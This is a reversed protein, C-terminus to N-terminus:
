GSRSAGRARSPWQDPHHDSVGDHRSGSPYRVAEIHTHEDIYIGSGIAIGQSMDESCGPTRAGILSESNTRVHKGLQSSIAPLSGKEKLQFLLEMTGLSSASFVVGRCTFRRPQPRDVRHIESHGGRIRRQRRGAGGLPKVDVVRTEPFLERGASKRWISIALTSVYEERRLPLGDHMRRLRHM